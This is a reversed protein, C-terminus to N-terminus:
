SRFIGAFGSFSVFHFKEVPYLVFHQGAVAGDAGHEIGFTHTKLGVELVQVQDARFQHQFQVAFVDCGARLDDLGVGEAGVERFQRGDPEVFPYGVDVQLPRQQRAPGSRTAIDEYGARHPGKRTELPIFPFEGAVLCHINEALLAQGQGFTAHVEEDELGKGVQLLQLAGQLGGRFGPEGGNGAHGEHLPPAGGAPTSASLTASSSVAAPADM